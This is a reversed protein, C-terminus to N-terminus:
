LNLLSAYSSLQRKDKGLRHELGGQDERWTQVQNIQHLCTEDLM